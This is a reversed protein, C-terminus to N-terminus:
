KSLSIVANNEALPATVSIRGNGLRAIQYGSDNVDNERPDVPVASLLYRKNKIVPSIDVLGECSKADSRCIGKPEISVIEPLTNKDEIAYQYVSNLINVVDSRRQSNRMELLKKSPNIFFIVIAFLIVLLFIAAIRQGLTSNRLLEKGKIVYEEYNM